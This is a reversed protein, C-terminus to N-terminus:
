DEGFINAYDNRNILVERKKGKGKSPGIVGDKELVALLKNARGTGIGFEDVLMNASAHGMGVFLTRAQEYLEDRNRGEERPAVEEEETEVPNKAIVDEVVCEIERESVFCGQVRECRGGSNATFLMDGNGLLQEAGAQGLAVQSDVKSAVSMIVRGQFNTKIPGKITKSDPRQTAMVLHIGAARGKQSLRQIHSEVANGSTQMLDAFEEVFIFIREMHHGKAIYSDVDRARAESLLRYRKDMEEAAWEFVEVAEDTETVINRLLHPIGRYLTFEVMKPDILIMKVDMYSAKYLLSVILSHICISKGSGTSGAILLHPVDKLNVFVPENVVSRGLPLQLVNDRDGLGILSRLGVTTREDNPVEVGFRNTGPIPAEVRVKEAALQMALDNELTKLKKVPTEDGKEFEYRTLTPGTKVEVITASDIGLSDLASKVEHGRDHTGQWDEEDEEIENLCDLCPPTYEVDGVVRPTLEEEEPEERVPEVQRQGFMEELWKRLKGGGHFKFGIKKEVWKQIRGFGKWAGVVMAVIALFMGFGKSFWTGIITGIFVSVIGGNDWRDIVWQPNPKMFDFFENFFVSAPYEKFWSGDHTTYFIMMGFGIIMAGFASTKSKNRKICYYGLLAVWMPYTVGLMSWLWNSAESIFFCVSLLILMAIPVAKELFAVSKTIDWNWFKLKELIDGFKDKIDLKIKM